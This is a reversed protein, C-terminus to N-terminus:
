AGTFSSCRHPITWGHLSLPAIRAIKCCIPLLFLARRVGYHELTREFYPQQDDEMKTIRMVHDAPSDKLHQLSTLMHLVERQIFTRGSSLPGVVRM